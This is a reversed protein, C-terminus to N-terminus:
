PISFGAKQAKQILDAREQQHQEELEKIKADLEPLTPDMGLGLKSIDVNLSDNKEPDRRNVLRFREVKYPQELEEYRDDLRKLQDLYFDRTPHEPSIPQEALTSDAWRMPAGSRALQATLNDLAAQADALDKKTKELQETGSAILPPYLHERDYVDSHILLNDRYSKLRSELFQQQAELDAIKQRASLFQESWYREDHGERDLVTGSTSSAAAGVSTGPASKEPPRTTSIDTNTIVRSPTKIKAQREREKRAAEGLDQAMLLASVGVITLILILIMRWKM